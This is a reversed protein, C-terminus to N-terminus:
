LNTIDVIRAQKALEGALKEAKALDENPYPLGVIYSHSDTSVVDISLKYQIGLDRVKGVHLSSVGICKILRRFAIEPKRDVSLGKSDTKKDRLLFAEPTLCNKETDIWRPRLARYIIEKCELPYM